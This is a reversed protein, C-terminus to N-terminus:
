ETEGSGIGVRVRSCANSQTRSQLCLPKRTTVILLVAIAGLGMEWTRLSSDCLTVFKTTM